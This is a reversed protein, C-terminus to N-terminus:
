SHLTSIYSSQHIPLYRSPLLRPRIITDDWCKGPSISSVWLYITVHILSWLRPKSQHSSKSNYVLSEHSCTVIVNDSIEVIYLDSSCAKLRRQRVLRKRTVSRLLPSEEAETSVDNGAQYYFQSMAGITTIVVDWFPGRLFCWEQTITWNNNFRKNSFILQRAAPTTQKATM